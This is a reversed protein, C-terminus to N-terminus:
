GRGVRRVHSMFSSHPSPIPFWRLLHFEGVNPRISEVVTHARAHDARRRAGSTGARRRPRRIKMFSCGCMVYRALNRVRYVRLLTDRNKACGKEFKTVTRFVKIDILGAVASLTVLESEGAGDHTALPLYSRTHPYFHRGTDVPKPSNCRRCFM